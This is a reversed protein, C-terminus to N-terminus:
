LGDTRKWVPMGQVVMEISQNEREKDWDRFYICDLRDLEMLRLIRKSFVVEGNQFKSRRIPAFLKKM